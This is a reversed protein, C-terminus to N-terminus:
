SFTVELKLKHGIQNIADQHYNANMKNLQLIFNKLQESSDFLLVLSLKAQDYNLSAIELGSNKDFFRSIKFLLELFGQDTVSNELETIKQKTKIEPNEIFSSHPFAQFYAKNLEETIKNNQHSKIFYELSDFVLFSILWLSALVATQFWIKYNKSSSKKIKYTGHFLNFTPEAECFISYVNPKEVVILEHEFIQNPLQQYPENMIKYFLLKPRVNSKTVFEQLTQLLIDEACHMPCTFGAKLDTRVILKEQYIMLSWTEAAYPIALYDPILFSPSLGIRLTDQYLDEMIKKSILLVDLYNNEDSALWQFHQSSVDGCIQDELLFPVAQNLQKSIKTPLLTQHHLVLLGDIIFNIEDETSNPQLVIDHLSDIKKLKDDDLQNYIVASNIFDYRIYLVKKKM